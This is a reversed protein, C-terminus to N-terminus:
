DQLGSLKGQAKDIEAIKDQLAKVLFRRDLANRFVVLLQENDWPKELYQFLGVENIAKIASGKDAYGTLLVRPAHPNSEAYDGLLEIGSVGPMLFDSVVLDVTNERGYAVAAAPDSFSVVEYETELELFTRLTDLVMDEDDVLVIRAESEAYKANM